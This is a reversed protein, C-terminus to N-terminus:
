RDLRYQPETPWAIEKVLLRPSPDTRLAIVGQEIDGIQRPFDWAPLFVLVHGFSAMLGRLHEPERVLFM